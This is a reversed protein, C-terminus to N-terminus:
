DNTSQERVRQRKAIEDIEEKTLPTLEAISYRPVTEWDIRNKEDNQVPITMMVSKLNNLAGRRVHWPKGLVIRETMYGLLRNGWGVFYVANKVPASQSQQQDVITVRVLAMLEERQRQARATQAKKQAKALKAEPTMLAEAEKLAAKEFSSLTDLLAPDPQSQIGEDEVENDTAVEDSQSYEADDKKLTAVLEDKTPQNAKVADIKLERKECLAKLEKNTMDEYNM